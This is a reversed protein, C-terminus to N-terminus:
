VKSYGSPFEDILEKFFAEFKLELVEQNDILIPIAQQLAARNNIRRSMQTLIDELGELTRYMIIWNHMKMVPAVHNIRETLSGRCSEYDIFLEKVYLELTQDSYTAWNKSLFHDFSMDVAISSFRGLTPKFINVCEKVLVHNDTFHDIARHLRVGKVLEDDVGEMKKGKVFDGFTNGLRVLPENPSLFSHALFNM